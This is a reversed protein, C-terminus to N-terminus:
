YRLLKGPRSRREEAELTAALPIGLSREYLIRRVVIRVGSSACRAGFAELATELPAGAELAQALSEAEARLPGPLAAPAACLAAIPDAGARVRAAAFALLYACARDLRACRLLRGPLGPRPAPAALPPQAGLRRVMQRRPSFPRLALAWNYVCLGATVATLLITLLMVTHGDPPALWAPAPWVLLLWLALGLGAVAAGGLALRLWLAASRARVTARHRELLLSLGETLNGSEREHGAVLEALALLYFNAGNRAALLRLADSLPWDGHARRLAEEFEARLPPEMLPIAGALAEMSDPHVACTRAMAALASGSAALVARERVLACLELAILPLPGCLVVAAPAAWPRGLWAAVAAGALACAGCLNLVGRWTLRSIRVQDLARQLPAALPQMWGRRIPQLPEPVWPLRLALGYVLCGMGIAFFVIAVKTTNVM